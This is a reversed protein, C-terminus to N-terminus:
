QSYLRMFSPVLPERCRIEAASARRPAKSLLQLMVGHRWPRLNLGFIACEMVLNSCAARRMDHAQAAQLGLRYMAMSSCLPKLAHSHLRVRSQQDAVLARM